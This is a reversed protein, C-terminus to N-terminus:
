NSATITATGDATATALGGAAITAVSTDSSAWVVSSTIDNGFNDIAKFQLQAGVAISPNAPPVTISTVTPQVGMGSLGISVPSNSANSTVVFSGTVSGSAAPAFTLNLTGGQGPGVIQGNSLGSATFGAASITTSSITINSGGSNTFTVSLVSNSSVNVSNFNVSTTSPALAGRAAANVTLTAGNSTVNGASNSIVVMFQAGSDAKTEAATTYTPSTAVIITM